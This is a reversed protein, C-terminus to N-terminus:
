RKRVARAGSERTFRGYKKAMLITTSRKESSDEAQEGIRESELVVVEDMFTTFRPVIAQPVIKRNQAYLRNTKRRTVLNGVAAGSSASLNLQIPQCGGCSSGSDSATAAADLRDSSRRDAARQSCRGWGDGHGLSEAQQGAAEIVQRGRCM